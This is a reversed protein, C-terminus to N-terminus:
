DLARLDSKFKNEDTSGPSVTIVQDSITFPQFASYYDKGKKAIVVITAEKGSPMNTIAYQNFGHGNGMMVVSREKKFVLMVAAEDYTNKPNLAVTVNVAPITNVFHDCNVWHLSDSQLYFSHLTDKFTDSVAVALSTRYTKQSWNIIGSSNAAGQFAYIITDAPTRFHVGYMKDKGLKLEKGNASATVFAMNDSSILQGSALTSIGSFVMDSKKLIETIEVAIPGSPFTGDPNVFISDPFMYSNGSATKVISLSDSPNITFSQKSPGAGKLFGSLIGGNWPSVTGTSITAVDEKNCSNFFLATGALLAAIINRKM